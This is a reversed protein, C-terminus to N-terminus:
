LQLWSHSCLLKLVGVYAAGKASDKFEGKVLKSPINTGLLLTVLFNPLVNTIGFYLLYFVSQLPLSVLM